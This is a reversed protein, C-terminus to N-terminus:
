KKYKSWKELIDEQKLVLSYEDNLFQTRREETVADSYWWDHTDKVTKALPTFTLGSAIAKQNSVLSIGRYKEMDLIWPAVFTLNNDKLFKADDIKIYNVASSFAAHAGYVFAPLTMPSAPGVGNFIGTTKNEILRIMWASIDRIDIYQVPDYSNGPIIIDGGKALQTPWYMFRNTRDAPGTMFTPRVIITRDKGFIEMAANESNAKMVGYDYTMKEDENETLDPVKLVLPDEETLGTKYYPYFVSVSSIYMYLECSEKLLEATAKTWAVKRGSNDIVVDWSRGKLADLNDERDGILKEVDNFLEKHITPETKGRSFMSVSHGQKLAYAIQHPGLFSSGGLILIKLPSVKSIHPDSSEATLNSTGVLPLLLSSKAVTNIFTRRSTKNLRDM